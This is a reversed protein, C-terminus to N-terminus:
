IFFMKIPFGHLFQANFALGVGGRKIKTCLGFRGNGSLFENLFLIIEFLIIVLFALIIVEEGTSILVVSLLM